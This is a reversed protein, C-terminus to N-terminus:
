DTKEVRDRRKSARFMGKGWGWGGKWRGVEGGRRRRGDACTETVCRFVPASPDLGLLEPFAFALDGQLVKLHSGLGESGGKGGRGLEGERGSSNERPNRWKGEKSRLWM